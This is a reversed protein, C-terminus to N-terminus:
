TFRAFGPMPPKVHIITLGLSPNTVEADVEIGGPTFVQTSPIFTLGHNVTWTGAVDNQVHVRAFGSGPPGQLGILTETISPQTSPGRIQIETFEPM